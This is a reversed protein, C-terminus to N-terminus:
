GGGLANWDYHRLFEVFTQLHPPLIRKKYHILKFDRIIRVKRIPVQRLTGLRLEKRIAWRSLISVGLNAEVAGKVAESSGLWMSFRLKRPDLGAKKLCLETEKRTGSGKERAIFRHKPLDTVDAAKKRSLPHGPPTILILEDELIKEQHLARNEVKEALIGLDLYRSTVGNLIRDSNGIELFPEIRPYRAKFDGLVKPLIYEGMTTSAGIVLRGQLVGSLQSLEREAKEYCALIKQAHLFLVEGAETLSVRNKERYFLPTGYHNELKRIQFTVAPQTLYLEEAAESFSLRKAANYFVLLRSNIM